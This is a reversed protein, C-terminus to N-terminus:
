DSFDFGRAFIDINGGPPIMIINFHFYDDLVREENSFYKKIIDRKLDSDSRCSNSLIDDACLFKGVLDIDILLLRCENFMLKKNVYSGDVRLYKIDICFSDNGGADANLRIMQFSLLKSDHLDLNNFTNCVNEMKNYREYLVQADVV